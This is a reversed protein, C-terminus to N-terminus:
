GRDAAPDPLRRRLAELKDAWAADSALNVRQSPDRDLDYLEEEGTSWEILVAAATRVGRWAPVTDDGVWWLPVVRDPAVSGQLSVGDTPAALLGALEGITPALDLNSVLAESPAGDVGPPWRVVFAVGVSPEYPVRKGVWGHEGFAFGNDSLVFVVTRNWEGRIAIARVLERLHEDVALLTEDASRRAVALDSRAEEDLPPLSRMWAVDGPPSAPEPEEPRGLTGAHRAAPTGPAHPAPPAFLLFWPRDVPAGRIFSAAERGLVDTVYDGPGAGFRRLAGQDVVPYGQYTTALSENAKAFWRDWGPPVYPGRDWPYGNLYKGVLGTTYGAGHLRTAITDTEDLREGTANDVVGTVLATRGTLITARSPCCMPTTVVADPYARWGSSPDAVQSRLWPMPAPDSTMTLTSQDDTLIVLINFPLGPLPEASRGAWSAAALSGLALGLAARRLLPRVETRSM